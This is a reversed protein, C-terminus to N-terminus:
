GFVDVGLKTKRIDASGVNLSSVILTQAQGIGAAGRRPAGTFADQLMKNVRQTNLDKNPIIRGATRPMFIEPGKEGVIYAQPNGAFGAGGAAYIPNVMGGEGRPIFKSVIGGVIGTLGGKFKGLYYGIMGFLHQFWKMVKFAPGELFDMIASGASIFIGAMGGALWKVMSVMHEFGVRVTHLIDSWDYFRKIAVALLVVLVGVAAVFLTLPNAKLASNWATTAIAAAWQGAAYIKSWVIALKKAMAERITLMISTKDLMNKKIKLNNEKQIGFLYALRMKIMRKLQAIEKHRLTRGDINLAMGIKRLAIKKTEAAIVLKTKLLWLGELILNVGLAKSLITFALAAKVVTPGLLDVAKIVMTLPLLYVKLLEVNMGGSATFDNILPILDRLLQNFMQVGQVAIDQIQKGMESLIFVGDQEVVLLEQLSEITRMVAEHFANLYQTGEYTADRHYFLFQVNNKLIQIQAGLSTNQEKVMADLEGAANESSKVAATFEDSAQVLHVFATAGRVNLDEILTTLLETDNIVGAELVSAFNAAIETLQLLEGQENTVEVGMKRFAATNDGVSEALEALGQRLGRGAIGAELARNTLVALAGLLQDISQGTTTFFPLAFKVASSLDEYEILSKQIAHAFKDTVVAAESMEMEFGFLTQATLKSITNHDGQVAMSLKLTETLVTQSDAASLGASALQYLGEAGNQMEMGFKQGFQTVEEGVDFLQSKTLGFVSNANLLEREFAVLEQVNQNLKYYFATLVSISERLADSFDRKLRGALQGTAQAWRKSRKIAAEEEQALRKEIELVKKESKVFEKNRRLAEENFEEGKETRIDNYMKFHRELVALDKKEQALEKIRDASITKMSEGEAIKEALATKRRAMGAMVEAREKGQMKTFNKMMKVYEGADMKDQNVNAFLKARLRTPKISASIGKVMKGQALATTGLGSFASNVKKVATAATSSLFNDQSKTHSEMNKRAENMSQRATALRKKTAEINKQHLQNYMKSAFGGISAGAESFARPSPMALGVAVRAAFIQGAFGM